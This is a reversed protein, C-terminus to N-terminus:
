IYIILVINIIKNGSCRLVSQINFFLEYTTIPVHLFSKQELDVSEWNFNVTLEIYTAHLLTTALEDHKIGSGRKSREGKSLLNTYHRSPKKWVKM